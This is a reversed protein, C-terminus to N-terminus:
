GDSVRDGPYGVGMGGIGSGEQSCVSVQSFTVKGCSRQRDTIIFPSHLTNSKGLIIECTEGSVDNDEQESRYKQARANFDIVM